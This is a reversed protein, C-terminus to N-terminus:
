RVDDGRRLAEEADSIHKWIEKEISHFETTEISLIKKLDAESFSHERVLGGFSEEVFSSGYGMVGDLNVTVSDFEKLAPVLIDDRFVEGTFQGYKRYRGAPAWSFDTEISIM